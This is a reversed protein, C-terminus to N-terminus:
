YLPASPILVPSSHNYQKNLSATLCLLGILAPHLVVSTINLYSRLPSAASVM